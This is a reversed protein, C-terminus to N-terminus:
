RAAGIKGILVALTAQLQFRLLAAWFAIPTANEFAISTKVNLAVLM